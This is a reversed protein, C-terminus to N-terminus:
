RSLITFFVMMSIRQANEILLDRYVQPIVIGLKKETLAIREESNSKEM